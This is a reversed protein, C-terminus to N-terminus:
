ARMAAPFAPMLTLQRSPAHAREIPTTTEGRARHLGTRSHTARRAHRRVARDYAPHTDTVVTHLRNGRRQPAQAFFARASDLTRRERLLVDVVQGTQGTQGTEDVARSVYAWQGGSAAWACPRNTWRGAPVCRGRAVGTNPPLSRAL